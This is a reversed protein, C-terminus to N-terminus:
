RSSEIEIDIAQVTAGRLAASWAEDAGGDGTQVM